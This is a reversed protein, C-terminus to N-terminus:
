TVVAARCLRCTIKATDVLLPSDSAGQHQMWKIACSEHFDHNCVFRICTDSERFKEQCHICIENTISLNAATQIQYVGLKALEKSGAQEIRNIAVLVDNKDPEFLRCARLMTSAQELNGQSEYSRAVHYFAKCLMRNGFHKELDHVKYNSLFKLLETRAQDNDGQNKNYAILRNTHLALCLTVEAAKVGASDNKMMRIGSEYKAIASSYEGKQFHENGEEKLALATTSM